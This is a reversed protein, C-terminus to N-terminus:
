CLYGLSLFLWVRQDLRYLLVYICICICRKAVCIASFILVSSVFSGERATNRMGGSKCEEYM